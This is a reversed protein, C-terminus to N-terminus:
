RRSAWPSTARASPASRTTRTATGESSALPLLHSTLCLLSAPPLLYAGFPEEIQLGLEEIGLLLFTVLGATPITALHNWSPDASWLALPLLGLWLGVYRSTHRTYVLPIPSKFIRECAGVNDCLVSLTSDFRALSQDSMGYLRATEGLKQLAYCQRNGSSMYSNVEQPTFGLKKLEVELNADDSSGRLFCRLCRTFASTEAAVRRRYDRFNGYGPYRDENFFTNAQRVLSRCNNIISGWQKRADDWRAYAANTRFVLLLGLSSGTLTFSSLPLSLVPLYPVVADHKVMGVGTWGGAFLNWLVLCTAFATVLTVENIRGRLVGSEQITKLSNFFRDTSRHDEWEKHMFVSRRYQRSSEKYESGTTTERKDKTVRGFELVGTELPICTFKGVGWELSLERRCFNPYTATNPVELRSASRFSRPVPGDGAIPISERESAKIYSDGDLAAAENLVNAPAEYAAAMNFAGLADNKKWFMVYTAGSALAMDVEENPIAQALADEASAWRNRPVGFEIVGGVVPMYAVSSIGYEAAISAREDATMSVDEAYVKARSRMAQAVPNPGVTDITMQESIDIYSYRKGAAELERAYGPSVYTKAPRAINGEQKWYIGYAANTAQVQMQLVAALTVPNLEATTSVGYELVGYEGTAEDVVPVMTVSCLNFEKAYAARKMSACLPWTEDDSFGVVVEKGTKLAEQVPGVSDLEVTLERSIKVFSEGDGRMTKRIQVDRPNEYDAIVRMENKEFDAEWYLAYLAGLDEFAKRLQAKPMTPAKPIETWQKHKMSRANGFEIVGAEFPLIAVQSVGYKLALEKRKLTSYSVDPIFLPEGTRQVQAIPGAGDAALAYQKSEEAYSAANPNGAYVGTAKLEGGQVSWYIAYQAGTTDCRMKLSAQLTQGTLPVPQVVAAMSPVPGTRAAALTAAGLRPPGVGRLPSLAPLLFVLGLM